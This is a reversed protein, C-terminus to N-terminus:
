DFAVSVGFGGLVDTSTDGVGWDASIDLQVNDIAMLTFGLGAVSESSAGSEKAIGAELYGAVRESIVFSLSPSLTFEHSQSSRSFNAYLGLAYRESLDWGAATGIALEHAGGTFAANGTALTARGLFALAMGEQLEPPAYKIALSTDGAGSESSRLGAIRREARNILSSGLQIEFGHNLGIRILTNAAYLDLQEGAARERIWDPLGQEWSVTGAPLTSPAFAIGPRDFAVGDALAAHSTLCLMLSIAIRM